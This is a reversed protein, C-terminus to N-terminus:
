RARAAVAADEYAVIGDIKMHRKMAVALKNCETQSFEVLHLYQPNAIIFALAKLKDDDTEPLRAKWTKRVSTGALKPSPAVYFVPANVVATKEEAEALLSQAAEVDEDTGSTAVMQLQERAEREQKEALERQERAKRELEERAERAIREQEVTYTLIAGKIIKEGEVLDALPQRFLDNIGKVVDNLPKVLSTRKDELATWKKKIAGLEDNAIELMDTSDIVIARADALFKTSTKVLEARDPASIAVSSPIAVTEETNAM